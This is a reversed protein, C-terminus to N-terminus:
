GTTKRPKSVRTETDSGQGKQYADFEAQAARQVPDLDPEDIAAPHEANGMVGERNRQRRLRRGLESLLAEDTAHELESTSRGALPQGGRAIVEPDGADWGLAKAIEAMRDDRVPEGREARKWTERNIKAAQHAATVTGYHAKRASAIVRGLRRLDGDISMPLLTAFFGLFM